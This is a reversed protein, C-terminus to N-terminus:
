KSLDGLHCHGPFQVNIGAGFSIVDPAANKSLERKILGPAIGQAHPMGTKM